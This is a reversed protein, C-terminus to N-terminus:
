AGSVISATAGVIQQVNGQFPHSRVDAVQRPDAVAPSLQLALSIALALKTSINKM